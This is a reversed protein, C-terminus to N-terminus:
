ETDCQKDYFKFLARKTLGDKKDEIWGVHLWYLEIAPDINNMCKHLGKIIKKLNKDDPDSYGEIGEHYIMTNKIYDIYSKDFETLDVEASIICRKTKVPYNKIYEIWDDRLEDFSEVDDEFTLVPNEKSFTYGYTITVHTAADFHKKDHLFDLHDFIYIREAVDDITMLDDENITNEKLYKDLLYEYVDSTSNLCALNKVAKIKSSLDKITNTYSSIDDIKKDPKAIEYYLRNIKNGGM